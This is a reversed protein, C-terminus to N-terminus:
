HLHRPHHNDEEPMEAHVPEAESNPYLPTGCDECYEAPFRHDLTTLHTVGAERLLTDIQGPIDTNEDEGDLLPWAVGHIVKSPDDLSFGIRYELLGREDHFPAVVAQFAAAERSLATSLYAVSSQIAFPRAARDAERCASFFALPLLAELACGTFLPRLAEGGQAQWQRRCEEQDGDTEQWRFIPQGHPVAAVALLYRTDSLFNMTEPLQGADVHLNQGKQAMKGLQGTFRATASFGPPLQDPSFLVDALGLRVGEALIHAQCQVRITNLAAAPVAGSPISFRSWALVPIAILLLDDASEGDTTHSEARAELLDALAEYGRDGSQYLQDLATNLAEDNGARLLSDLKATLRQEWFADELRSSSLGLARADRLLADLDPTARSSRFPRIRKM